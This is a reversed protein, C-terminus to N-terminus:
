KELIERIEFSAFKWVNDIKQLESRLERSDNYAQGQKRQAIVNVSYDITASKKDPNLTVEMDTIKGTISKFLLRSKIISASLEMPTYTGNIIMEKISVSCTPAFMNSLENNKMGIVIASESGNKLCLTLLNNLQGKIIDEESKQDFFFYWVVGGGLVLLVLTMIIKKM